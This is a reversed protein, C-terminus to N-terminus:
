IVPKYQYETVAIYWKILNYASAVISTLVIIFVPIVLNVNNYLTSKNAMSQGSYTQYLIFSALIYGSIAHSAVLLVKSRNTYVTVLYLLVWGFSIQIVFLGLAVYGTIGHSKVSVDRKITASSVEVAGIIAFVFASTMLIGHVAGVITWIRESFHNNPVKSANIISFLKDAWPFASILLIGASFLIVSTKFYGLNVIKVQVTSAISEIAALASSM